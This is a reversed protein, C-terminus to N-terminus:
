ITLVKGKKKKALGGWTGDEENDPDPANPFSPTLAVRSALSKKKKKGVGVPDPPDVPSTVVNLLSSGWSGWESPKQTPTPCPQTALKVKKGEWISLPKEPEINAPAPPPALSPAPWPKPTVPVEGMVGPPIESTSSYAETVVEPALTPHAPEPPSPTQEADTFRMDEEALPIRRVREVEREARERAKCEAQEREKRKAEIKKKDRIEKELQEFEVRRRQVERGEDQQNRQSYETLTRPVTENDVKSLKLQQKVITEKLEVQQAQGRM